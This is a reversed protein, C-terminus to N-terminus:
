EVKLSGCIELLTALDRAPGTCRARVQAKRGNRITWVEAGIAGSTPKKVIQFGAEVKSPEVSYLMGPVTAEKAAADLRAIASRDVEVVWSIMSNIPLEFTHDYDNTRNPKAGKPVRMSYGASPADGFAKVVGKTEELELPKQQASALPGFGIAVLAAAVAAVAPTKTKPKALFAFLSALLLLFGFVLSLPFSVAPILAALGMIGGSLRPFKFVLFTGVFALLGLGLLMDALAAKRKALRGMELVKDFDASSGGVATTDKALKATVELTSDLEKMDKENVSWLTGGVVLALSGLIGFVLAAIKM